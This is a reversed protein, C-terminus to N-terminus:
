AAAAKGRGRTVMWTYVFAYTSSVAYPLSITALINRTGALLHATVLVVLIVTCSTAPPVIVALVGALRASATELFRKLGLTIAGSLTGQVLGALLAHGPGASRNAFVAWAGMALFAFGVHVVSSRALTTPLGAM